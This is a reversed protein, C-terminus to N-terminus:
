RESFNIKLAVQVEGVRGLGGFFFFVFFFCVCVCMCVCVWGRVKKGVGFFREM